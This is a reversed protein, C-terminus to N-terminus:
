VAGSQKLISIEEKSFGLEKEYIEENHEGILPARQLIKIPTESFKCFAGPYTLVDGLEDHKINIWFDRGKLQRNEMTDKSTNVPYLMINRKTAQDEIEQKTHSNLFDAIPETISNIEEQAASEWDWNEWDKEILHRPAKGESNMWEILIRNTRAGAVGGQLFFSAHGDKCKWIIPAYKGHGDVFLHGPRKPEHRLMFWRPQIDTTVVLVSEMASVDVQQGEGTMERYYHAVMAGVAADASANIFSQPFSVQVPPRDVDGSQSMLLGMAFVTMDSAKLRAYPGTQGFPSISVLIIRRNIQSLVPYGLGIEDMYGPVFSEIVFDATRVLKKFIDKGDSTEINLTIGRKNTNYAFWLLSKEPDPINHYFPGKDRSADGGPKEIKIVDAGLDALIKGCLFGKEDTLDLVRYCSLM